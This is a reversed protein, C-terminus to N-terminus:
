ASVHWADANFDRCAVELLRERGVSWFFERAEYELVRVDFGTELRVALAAVSMDRVGSFLVSILLGGYEKPLARVLREIIIKMAQVGRQCRSFASAGRPPVYQVRQLRHADIAAVRSVRVLSCAHPLDSVGGDAFFAQEYWPEREEVPLLLSGETAHVNNRLEQWWISCRTMFHPCTEGGSSDLVDRLRKHDSSLKALAETKSKKTAGHTPVQPLAGPEDVDEAGAPGGNAGDDDDDDGDGGPDECGGSSGAVGRLKRKQLSQSVM